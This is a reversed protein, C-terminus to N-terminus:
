NNLKEVYWVTRRSNKYIVKSCVKYPIKMSSLISNITKLSPKRGKDDKYRSRNKIFTETVWEQPLCLAKSLILYAFEDYDEKEMFDIEEKEKILETIPNVADIYEVWNAKDYKKNLWKLQNLLYFNQPLKGEPYENISDTYLCLSYLCNILVSKNIEINELVNIKKPTEYFNSRKVNPLIFLNPIRNKNIASLLENRRTELKMTKKIREKDFWYSDDTDKYRRFWEYSLAKRISDMAQNSLANIKNYELCRIFLNVKQNEEKRLRGIMQIFESKNAQSIVINSVEIDKINIGNDLVSTAILVRSKFKQDKILSEFEKQAYSNERKVASSSIFTAFKKYAESNKKNAKKYENNLHKQFKKGDDKNDVFVLWKEDSNLIRSTLNEYESFYFCEYDDYNKDQEYFYYEDTNKRFTQIINKLEKILGKLVSSYEYEEREKKAAELKEEYRATYCEDLSYIYKDIEDCTKKADIFKNMLNDLRLRDKYYFFLYLSEPTATMFVFTSQSSKLAKKYWFYTKENFSADSLMYHVEDFVYYMVNRSCVSIVGKRKGYIDKEVSLLKDINIEFDPFSEITECYQYSVIYLYEFVNYVRGDVTITGEYKERKLQEKLANRNCLYVVSKGRRIADPLLKEFVFTTKGSATHSNIIVRKDKNDEWNLYEDGIIDKVYRSLFCVELYLKTYLVKTM